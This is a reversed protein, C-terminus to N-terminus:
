PNSTNCLPLTSQVPSSLRYFSHRPRVGIIKCEIQHGQARLDAIRSHVAYCGAHTAIDPMAVWQGHNRLLLDFVRANQTIM